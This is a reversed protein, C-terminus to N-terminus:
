RGEALSMGSRRPRAARRRDDGRSRQHGTFAGESWRRSCVVSRDLEVALPACGSRTRSEDSIVPNRRYEERRATEASSMGV